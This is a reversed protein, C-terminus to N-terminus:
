GRIVESLLHQHLPVGTLDSVKQLFRLYTMAGTIVGQREMLGKAAHRCFSQTMYVKSIANIRQGPQDQLMIASFASSAKAHYSGVTDRKEEREYFYAMAQRFDTLAKKTTGKLEPLPRSGPFAEQCFDKMLLLWRNDFQPFKDILDGLLPYFSATVNSYGTLVSQEMSGYYYEIGGLTEPDQMEMWMPLMPHSAVKPWYRALIQYSFLFSSPTTPNVLFLERLQDLFELNRSDQYPSGRFKGTYLYQPYAILCLVLLKYTDDHYDGTKVNMGRTFINYHHSVLQVLHNKTSRGIGLMPLLFDPQIVEEIKDFSSDKADSLLKQQGDFDPAVVDPETMPFGRLVPPLAVTRSEFMQVLLFQWVCSPSPCLPERTM